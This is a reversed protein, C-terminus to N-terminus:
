STHGTAGIGRLNIQSYAEFKQFIWFLSGEIDPRRIQFISNLISKAFSNAVCFRLLFKTEPPSLDGWNKAMSVAFSHMTSPPNAIKPKDM